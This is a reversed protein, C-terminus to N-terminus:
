NVQPPPSVPLVLHLHDTGTFPQPDYAVAGPSIMAEDLRDAPVVVPIRLPTQDGVTEPDTAWLVTILNEGTCVWGARNVHIRPKAQCKTTRTM